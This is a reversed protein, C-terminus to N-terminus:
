GAQVHRSPHVLLTLVSQSFFLSVTLSGLCLNGIGPNLQNLDQIPVCCYILRIPTARILSIQRGGRTLLDFKQM